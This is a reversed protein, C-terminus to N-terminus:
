WIPLPLICRYRGHIGTPLVRPDGLGGPARAALGAQVGRLFAAPPYIM